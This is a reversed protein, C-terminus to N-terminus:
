GIPNGVSGIQPGSHMEGFMQTQDLLKIEPGIADRLIAIEAFDITIADVCFRARQQGRQASGRRRNYGGQLGRREILGPSSILGFGGPVYRFLDASADSVAVAVSVEVVEVIKQWSIQVMEHAQFLRREEPEPRPGGM